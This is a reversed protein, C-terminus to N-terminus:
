HLHKKGKHLDPIIHDIKYFVKGKFTLDSAAEKAKCVSLHSM